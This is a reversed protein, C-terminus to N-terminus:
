QPLPQSNNTSSSLRDKQNNNTNNIVVKFDEEGDAKDEEEEKREDISDDVTESPTNRDKPQDKTNSQRKPKQQQQQSPPPPWSFWSMMMPLLVSDTFNRIQNPHIPSDGTFNLSANGKQSSKPNSTNNNNNNNNNINGFLNSNSSPKFFSAAAPSKQYVYQQSAEATRPTTSMAHLFDELTIKRLEEVENPLSSPTEQQKKHKAIQSRIPARAAQQCLVHLDSGSYHKTAAALAKFDFNDEIPEGKLIIRLIEERQKKKPLGIYFSLSLRRHIAEDLDQPRNTAGIITVQNNPALGDWLSMFLGKLRLSVEHDAASRKRLLTDIEDIFIVCPQIKQALSFLAELIKESQGLYYQYLSASSLNIFAAHGYKAIAKALMTKGTGPPGYLLLGKPIGLLKGRQMGQPMKLPYILSEYISSKVDELGGIDDFTVDVEEPLVLDKAIHMEFSALKGLHGNSKLREALLSNIKLAKSKSLSRDSHPQFTRQILKLTIWTGIILFVLELLPKGVVPLVKRRIWRAIQGVPSRAILARSSNVVLALSQSNSKSDGM